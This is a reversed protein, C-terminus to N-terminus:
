ALETRVRAILQECCGSVEYSGGGGSPTVRAYQNHVPCRISNVRQEVLNMAKQKVDRTLEDAIRHTPVTRGNLKFSLDFMIDGLVDVDARLRSRITGMRIAHAFEATAGM